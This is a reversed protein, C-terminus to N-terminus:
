KFESGAQQTSIKEDSSWRQVGFDTKKDSHRSWVCSLNRQQIEGCAIACYIEVFRYQFLTHKWRWLNGTKLTEPETDVGVVLSPERTHCNAYSACKDQRVMPVAKRDITSVKWVFKTSVVCPDKSQCLGTVYLCANQECGAIDFPMKIDPIAIKQQFTFPKDGRFCYINNSNRCVIYIKGQVSAIGRVAACPDPTLFKGSFILFSRIFM